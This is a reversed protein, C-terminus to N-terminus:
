TVAQRGVTIASHSDRRWLYRSVLSPKATTETISKKPSEPPGEQSAWTMFESDVNHQRKNWHSRKGIEVFM